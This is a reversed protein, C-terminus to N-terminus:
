EGQVEVRRLHLSLGLAMVTPSSFYIPSKLTIKFRVNGSDDDWTKISSVLTNTFTREIPVKTFDCEANPVTLWLVGAPEDYYYKPHSRGRTDLYISFEDDSADFRAGTIRVHQPEAPEEGVEIDIRGETGEGDIGEDSPPEPEDPLTEEPEDGATEGEEDVTIEEAGEGILVSGEDSEGENSQELLQSLPSTGSKPEDDSETRGPPRYGPMEEHTWGEGIDYKAAEETLRQVEALYEDIKSVQASYDKRLAEDDGALIVVMRFEDRAEAFKGQGYLISGKLTHPTPDDGKLEMWRGLHFLANDVDDNKIYAMALQEIIDVDDNKLALAKEYASIAEPWEGRLKYYEGDAIILGIDDEISVDNSAFIEEDVIDVPEPEIQLESIKEEVLDMGDSAPTKLANILVMSVAIIIMIAISSFVAPRTRRPSPADVPLETGSDSSILHRESGCGPCADRDIGVKAGCELCVLKDKPSNENAENM